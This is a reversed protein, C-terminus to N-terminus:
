DKSVAKPLISKNMFVLGVTRIDELTPTVSLKLNAYVFTEPPDANNMASIQVIYEGYEMQKLLIGTPHAQQYDSPLYQVRSNDRWDCDVFCYYVNFIAPTMEGTFNPQSYFSIDLIIPSAIRSEMEELIEDTLIFDLNFEEGETVFQIKPGQIEGSPINKAGSDDEDGSAPTKEVVSVTLSGNDGTLSEVADFTASVPLTGTVSVNFKLGKTISGISSTFSPTWTYTRNGVKVWPDKGQSPNSALTFGAPTTITFTPKYDVKNKNSIKLSVDVTSDNEPTKPNCSWSVTYAPEKYNVTVRIFSLRVYGSDKDANTPYSIKVGFDKSNM